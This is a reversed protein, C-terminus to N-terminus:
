KGNSVLKVLIAINFPFTASLSISAEPRHYGSTIRRLQCACLYKKGVHTDQMLSAAAISNDPSFIFFPISIPIAPGEPEPLVDTAALIM